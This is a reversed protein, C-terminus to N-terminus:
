VFKTKGPMAVKPEPISVEWNHEKPGLVEKSNFAM